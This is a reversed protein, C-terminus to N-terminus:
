SVTARLQTSLRRAQRKLPLGSLLQAFIAVRQPVRRAASVVPGLLAVPFSAAVTVRAQPLSGDDASSPDSPRPNAFTASRQAASPTLGIPSTGAIAVHM